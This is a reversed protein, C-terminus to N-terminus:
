YDSGQLHAPAGAAWELAARDSSSAVYVLADVPQSHSDDALPISCGRYTLDDDLHSTQLLSDRSAPDPAGRPNTCRACLEVDPANGASCVNCSWPEKIEPIQSTGCHPCVVASRPILQTCDLSICNQGILVQGCVLCEEAEKLNDAQCNPCKVLEEVPQQDAQEVLKWWETDDYFGPLKELFKAKFEEETARSIRKPKGPPPAAAADWFGMYMDTKGPTRVRRYGQYLKFVPSSNAEANPQTPQLSSEGRLFTMARQWEESTRQFDQKLFDVPVHNLHVEGIIRGFPGDIPYDKVTTKFEDTFEFFAAQEAIRIARGNRLLDIGFNEKDDFRQIGVWGRVREEITRFNTLGCAPCATGGPLVQAGCDACRTQHALVTNFDFRAPIRGHERREVYRAADWVCHEYATCTEGNVMIRVSEERLLTAYRRGFEKRITSKSYGALKRIFDSNPNGEPWWGDVSIITGNTFELPKPVPQAPVKYNRQEQLAILDILVSLADEQDKRATLFRTVRGLKGTAVNFGMGFLGLRDFSNNGSFGARLANQAQEATLGPGNDRVRVMGEGREVEARSPLDVVVLPFEVPAGDARAMHFSDIANDILECLADLPQLPTHTLAILVRPDPTLDFEIM